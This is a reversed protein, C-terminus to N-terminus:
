EDWLHLTFLNIAPDLDVFGRSRIWQIAMDQEKPDDTSIITRIEDVGYSRCSECLEFLMRTALGTGRDNPSVFMRDLYAIGSCMDLSASMCTEGEVRMVYPDQGMFPKVCGNEATLSIHGLM